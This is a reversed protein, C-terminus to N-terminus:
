EPRQEPSSGSETGTEQRRSQLCSGPISGNCYQTPKPPKGHCLPFEELALQNAAEAFAQRIGILHRRNEEDFYVGPINASGFAFKNKLTEYSARSNLMNQGQVPVLRYAQGENRLYSGFGLEGFPSTFYIPRNWKNAAIINLVAMDNKLLIDKPLDFRIESPVADGPEVTGNKRVFTTDVPVSVKKVPLYNMWTGDQMQVQASQDDSGIFDHM